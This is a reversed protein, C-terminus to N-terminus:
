GRVNGTFGDTVIVDAQDSSIGDGEIYGAYDVTAERAATADRLRDAADKVDQRGKHKEAGVNLLAIRPTEVDLSIRAYEAGMAANIVLDQPDLRLNAGVDLVVNFGSPNESPWLAAIAPRDVGEVTRLRVMAMAMLAGTNGCSVMASAERCAVADLARWMSSERGDRLAQTPQTEMDIVQDCHRIDVADDALPREAMAARLRPEDGFLLFRVDPLEAMALMVGEVSAEPGNDGGMADVAITTTSAVAVSRETEESSFNEGLTKSGMAGTTRLM